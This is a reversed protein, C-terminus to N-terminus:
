GRVDYLDYGIIGIVNNIYEKRVTLPNNLDGVIHEVYTPDSASTEAVELDRDLAYILPYKNFKTVAEIYEFGWDPGATTFPESYGATLKVETQVGIANNLVVAYMGIGNVYHDPLGVNVLLNVQTGSTDDFWLLNNADFAASFRNAEIFDELTPNPTLFDIITSGFDTDAYIQKTVRIGSSAYSNLGYVFAPNYIISNNDPDSYVNNTITIDPYKSSPATIYCPCGITTLNHFQLLANYNYQPFVAYGQPLLELTTFGLASSKRAYNLLDAGIIQLTSSNLLALIQEELVAFYESLSHESAITIYTPDTEIDMVSYPYIARLMTGRSDSKEDLIWTTGPVYMFTQAYPTDSDLYLNDYLAQCKAFYAIGNPIYLQNALNILYNYRDRWINLQQYTDFPSIRMAAIIGSPYARNTQSYTGVVGLARRIHSFMSIVEGLALIYMLIDQPAYTLARGTFGAMSTYLRRAAAMGPYDFKFNQADVVHTGASPSLTVVAIGARANDCAKSFNPINFGQIVNFATQTMDEALAKNSFYWGPDNLRGRDDFKDRAYKRGKEKPARENRDHGHKRGKSNQTTETAGTSPVADVSAPAKKNSNNNKNRAM